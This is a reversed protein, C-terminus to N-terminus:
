YMNLMVSIKYPIDSASLNMNKIYDSLFSNQIDIPIYHNIVIKKEHQVLCTGHKFDGKGKIVSFGFNEIFEILAKNQEKLQKKSVRTM